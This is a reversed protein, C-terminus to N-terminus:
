AIRVVDQQRDPKANWGSAASAAETSSATTLQLVFPLNDLVLRRLRRLLFTRASAALRVLRALGEGIAGLRQHPSPMMTLEQAPAL